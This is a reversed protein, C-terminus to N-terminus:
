KERLPYNSGGCWRWDEVVEQERKEEWRSGSNGQLIKGLETHLSMGM